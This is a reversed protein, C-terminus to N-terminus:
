NFRTLATRSTAIASVAESMGARFLPHYDALHRKEQLDVVATAFAVLDSGFGGTPEYTLYREPLKPKAVDECLRLLSRHEGSRYVLGYAPTQRRTRGIFADAAETVVAHFIAYYANSIARRLDAQRPAGGGPPAIIRDAQELLHEPNLVPM